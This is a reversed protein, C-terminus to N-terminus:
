QYLATLVRHDLNCIHCSEAIGAPKSLCEAFLKAAIGAFVIRKLPLIDSSLEEEAVHSIINSTQRFSSEPISKCSVSISKKVPDFLDGLSKAELFFIGRKGIM